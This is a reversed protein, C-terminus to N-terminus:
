DDIGLVYNELIMHYKREGIEIQEIMSSNVLITANEYLPLDVDDSWDIVAALTHPNAKPKYGDPVLVIAEDNDKQEIPDILIHRNCPIM